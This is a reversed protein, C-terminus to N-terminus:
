HPTPNGSRTASEAMEQQRTMEDQQAQAQAANAQEDVARIATVYQDRLQRATAEDPASAIAARAEEVLAAIADNAESVIRQPRQRETREDFARMAGARRRAVGEDYRTRAPIQELVARVPPTTRPAQAATVQAAQAQYTPVYRDMQTQAPAQPGQVDGQQIPGYTMPYNQDTQPLPQAGVSGPTAERPGEDYQRTDSITLNQRTEDPAPAAM